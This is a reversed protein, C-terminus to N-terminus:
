GKNMTGYVHTKAVLLTILIITFNLENQFSQSHRTQSFDFNSINTKISFFFNNCITHQPPKEHLKKMVHGTWGDM